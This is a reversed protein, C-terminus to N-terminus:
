PAGEVPIRRERAFDRLRHKLRQRARFLRSMVTGVPIELAAGIEKYPLGGLSALLLPARFEEPLEEIARKVDDDVQESLVREWDTADAELERVAAAAPDEVQDIDVAVPARQERRKGSIFANTVIRFMWAKFHTGPQFSDFARLARYIGEQLLDEAAARDRTMRLCYGLLPDLLPTLLEEFEARRERSVGRM